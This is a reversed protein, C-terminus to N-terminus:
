SLIQFAAVSTAKYNLELIYRHVILQSSYAHCWAAPTNRVHLSFIFYNLVVCSSLTCVHLESIHCIGIRLTPIYICLSCSVVPDAPKIKSLATLGKLLTPNVAKALYDTADKGM